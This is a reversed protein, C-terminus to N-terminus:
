QALTRHFWLLKSRKILSDLPFLFCLFIAISDPAINWACRCYCLLPPAYYSIYSHVLYQIHYFNARITGIAVLPRKARRGAREIERMCKSYVAFRYRTRCLWRYCQCPLGEPLLRLPPDAQIYNSRHATTNFHRQSFWLDLAISRHLIKM